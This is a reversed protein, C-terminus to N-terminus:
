LRRIVGCGIKTGANGAPQSRFDDAGSHIVITKGIIESIAFRNTVVALYGRGGCCRFLPPLDGAHSPHPQHDPNFHGGTDAFDVGSCSSGEHIHLAFVGNGSRPLGRVQTVVLVGGWMSYFQATGNLDPAERGGTIRAIAIPPTAPILM